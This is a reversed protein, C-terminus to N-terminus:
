RGSVPATRSSSMTTTVLFPQSFRVFNGLSSITHGNLGRFIELLVPLCSADERLDASACGSPYLFARLQELHGVGDLRVDDGAAALGGEGDVDRQVDLGRVVRGLRAVQPDELVVDDLQVDADVHVAVDRVRRDGDVQRAVRVQHLRRLLRQFFGDLDHLGACRRGVDAGYNFRGDVAEAELRDIIKRAVAQFPEHLVRRRGYRVTLHACPMTRCASWTMAISGKAVSPTPM